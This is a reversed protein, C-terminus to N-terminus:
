SKTNEDDPGGGITKIYSLFDEFQMTILIPKHNQKHVVAPLGSEQSKADREAQEMWEYLRMKEQFKVELHVGVPGGTVDAMGNTKGRVQATRRADKYGYKDRMLNAVILEGRKGKARAMKGREGYTKDANGM